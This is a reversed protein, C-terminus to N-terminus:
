APSFCASFIVIIVLMILQNILVIIVQRPSFDTPSADTKQQYFDQNELMTKDNPRFLLYTSTCSAAEKTDGVVVAFVNHLLYIIM